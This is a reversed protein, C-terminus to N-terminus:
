KDALVKNLQDISSLYFETLEVYSEYCSTYERSKLHESIKVLVAGIRNFLVVRIERVEGGYRKDYPFDGIINYYIDEILNCIFFILFKLHPNSPLKDSEGLKDQWEEQFIKIDRSFGLVNSTSTDGLRRIENALLIIEKDEPESM